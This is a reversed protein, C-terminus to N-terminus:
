LNTLFKVCIQLLSKCSHTFNPFDYKKPNPGPASDYFAMKLLFTKPCM